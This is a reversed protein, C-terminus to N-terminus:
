LERRWPSFVYVPAQVSNGGVHHVESAATFVPTQSFELNDSDMHQVDQEFNLDAGYLRDQPTGRV